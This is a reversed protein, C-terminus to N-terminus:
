DGGRAEDRPSKECRLGARLTLDDDVRRDLGRGDEHRARRGLEVRQRVLRKVRMAREPTLRLAVGELDIERRRARGLHLHRHRARVRRDAHLAATLRRRGRGRRAPLARRHEALHHLATRLPLGQQARRIERHARHRALRAKEGRTQGEDALARALGLDIDAIEEEAVHALDGPVVRQRDRRAPRRVPLAQEVGTKEAGAERLDKM